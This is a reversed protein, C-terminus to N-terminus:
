ALALVNEGVNVKGFKSVVVETYDSSNTVIVPTSIDFGKKMVTDRDFKVLIDGAKVTDGEKVCSEFHEGNLRVTDI